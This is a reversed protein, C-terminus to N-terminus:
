LKQFSPTELKPRKILTSEKFDVEERIPYVREIRQDKEVREKNRDAVKEKQTSEDFRQKIQKFVELKQGLLDSCYHIQEKQPIMNLPRPEDRREPSSSWREEEDDLFDKLEQKAQNKVRMM